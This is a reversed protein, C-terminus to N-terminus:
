SNKSNYLFASGAIHVTFPLFQERFIVTSVSIYANFFIMKQPPEWATICTFVKGNMYWNSTYSTPSINVFSLHNWCKLVLWFKIEVKESFFKKQNGHHLVRTSREMSTDIVLTPSINVFGPRNIKEPYPCVSVIESDEYPFMNSCLFLKM